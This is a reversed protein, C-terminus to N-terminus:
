HLYLLYTNVYDIILIPLDHPTTTLRQCLYFFFSSPRVGQYICGDFWFADTERCCRVILVRLTSTSSNCHNALCMAQRLTERRVFLTPCGRLRQAHSHKEKGQMNLEVLSRIHMSRLKVTPPECDLLRSLIFHVLQYKPGFIVFYYM